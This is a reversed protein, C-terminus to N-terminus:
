KKKNLLMWMGAIVTKADWFKNEKILDLFQHVPMEIIEISENESKLGGGSDVKDSSRVEAYFLHTQESTYGPSIFCSCIPHINEKKIEYGIEEKAERLATQLPSEGPDVKGALIELIDEKMKATLAYRFQKTLIVKDTDINIVLAAAGDQRNIRKRSFTKNNNSIEAEEIILQDNFIIKEKLIQPM